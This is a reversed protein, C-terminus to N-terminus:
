ILLIILRQNYVYLSKKWKTRDNNCDKQGDLVEQLVAQQQQLMTIVDKEPSILSNQITIKPPIPLVSNTPTDGYLGNESDDSNFNFDEFDQDRSTSTHRSPTVTVDQLGMRPSYIDIHSGDTDKPRVPTDCNVFSHSLM